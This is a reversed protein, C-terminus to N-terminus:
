RSSNRPHLKARLGSLPPMLKGSVDVAQPADDQPSPKGEARAVDERIAQDALLRLVAAPFRPWASLADRGNAFGHRYSASRNASPEPNDPKRGDLYGEVMEALFREELPRDADSIM